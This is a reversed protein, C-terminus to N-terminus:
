GVHDRGGSGAIPCFILIEISWIGTFAMLLDIEYMGLVGSQWAFLHQALWQGIFLLLYLLWSPVSFSKIWRLLRDLWSIPYPVYLGLSTDM